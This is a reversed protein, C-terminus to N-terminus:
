KKKKKPPTPEDGDDDNAVPASKRKFSRGDDDDDLPKDKSWGAKEGSDSTEPKRDFTDDQEVLTLDSFDFKIPHERGEIKVKALKGDIDSAVVEGTVEEGKFEVTVTDGSAPIWKAAPTPKAAGARAIAGGPAPRKPTDEDHNGDGNSSVAPRKAPKGDQDDDDDGDGDDDDTVEGTFAANLKAYPVEQVMADLDYGHEFISVPLLETRPHMSHVLYHTVPKGKGAPKDKCTVSITMGGDPDYYEKYPKRKPEPYGDIHEKLYEGFLWRSVEWLQVGKESQEHDYVLWLQRQKAKLNEAKAQSEADPFDLFKKRQQCIPCPHGFNLAPCAFTENNHGVGYHVWYRREPYWWTPGNSRRESEVFRNCNETVEFPILDITFSGVKKPKYFSLGRPVKLAGFHSDKMDATKGDDVKFRRREERAM